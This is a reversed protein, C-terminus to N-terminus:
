LGEQVPTLQVRISHSARHSSARSSQRGSGPPPTVTVGHAGSDGTVILARMMAPHDLGDAM